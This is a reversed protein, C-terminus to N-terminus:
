VLFSLMNIETIRSFSIFIWINDPSARNTKAAYHHTPDEAFLM